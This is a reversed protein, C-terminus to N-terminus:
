AHNEGVILRRAAEAMSEWVMVRVEGMGDMTLLHVSPAANSRLLCPIGYSELLSKIVQAQMDGSGRYVEVLQEKNEL